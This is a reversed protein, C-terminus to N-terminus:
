WKSIFSMSTDSNIKSTFTVTMLVAPNVSFSSTRQKDLPAAQTTAYSGWVVGTILKLGTRSSADRSPFGLLIGYSKYQDARTSGRSRLPLEAM